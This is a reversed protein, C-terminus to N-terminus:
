RGEAVLEFAERIYDDVPRDDTSRSWSQVAVRLATVAIGAVLQPYLDGEPDTGTREAIAAVMEREAEHFHERIRPIVAPHQDALQRRARLEDRRQAFEKATDQLIDRLDLWLDTGTREAFAAWQEKSPMQPPDGALAEDKSAFHNFFTRPAVDAERCIAEVTVNEVDSDLALRLAAQQLARRTAQKKRERRGHSAPTPTQM